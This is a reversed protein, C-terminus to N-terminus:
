YEFYFTFTPVTADDLIECSVNMTVLAKEEIETLDLLNDWIQEVYVGDIYYAVEVYYSKGELLYPLLVKKGSDVAITNEDADRPLLNVADAWAQSQANADEFYPVLRVSTLPYDGENVVKVRCIPESCGALAVLVVVLVLTGMGRLAIRHM